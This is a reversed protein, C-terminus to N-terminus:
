LHGAGFIVEGCLHWLTASRVLCHDALGEPGDAFRGM